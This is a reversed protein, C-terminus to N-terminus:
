PGVHGFAQHNVVRNIIIPDFLNRKSIKDNSNDM